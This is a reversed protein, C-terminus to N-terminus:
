IIRKLYGKPNYTMIYRERSRDIIFNKQTTVWAEIAKLPGPEPGVHIIDCIGDEVILYSGQSVFNSYNQMVKLTNDFTHASDEIVLVQDTKTINMKVQELVQSSNCDGILSIFAESEFEKLNKEAKAELDITIVKGNTGILNMRDKCWLTFGGNMNGIEIIVTPKIEWFIEEYVVLDFPNKIMQLGRYKQHYHLNDQHYHLWTDINWDLSNELYFKKIEEM